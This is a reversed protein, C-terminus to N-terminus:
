KGFNLYDEISPEKSGAAGPTHLDRNFKTQARVLIVTVAAGVLVVRALGRVWAPLRRLQPLEPLWSLLPICFLLVAHVSSVEGFFHGVVLLSFLGAVPIGLPHVGQSARTLIFAAVIAGTIAAALPLGIQGGTAYGSLMVIVAAGATTV